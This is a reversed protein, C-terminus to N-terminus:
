HSMSYLLYNIAVTLRGDEDHIGRWHTCGQADVGHRGGGWGRAYSPNEAYVVRSSSSSGRFPLSPSRPPRAGGSSQYLTREGCSEGSDIEAAMNRSDGYGAALGFVFTLPLRAARKM